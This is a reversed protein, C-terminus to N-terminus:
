MACRGLRFPQDIDDILGQENILGIFGIPSGTVKQAVELCHEGLTKESEYALTHRFIRNIGELVM